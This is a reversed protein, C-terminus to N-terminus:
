LRRGVYARAPESAPSTFFQDAVAVEVIEGEHMFAVRDAVERAFGLEHTVILMTMGDDALLRIVDLM